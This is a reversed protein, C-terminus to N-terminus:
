FRDCLSFTSKDFHRIPPTKKFNMLDKNANITQLYFIYGYSNQTRVPMLLCSHLLRTHVHLSVTPLFVTVCSQSWVPASLIDQLDTDCHVM